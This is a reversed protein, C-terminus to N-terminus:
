VAVTFLLVSLMSILDVWTVPEVMVRMRFPVMERPLVMVRFGAVSLKIMSMLLLFSSLVVREQTIEWYDCECLPLKVLEFFHFWGCWRFLGSCGMCRGKECEGM